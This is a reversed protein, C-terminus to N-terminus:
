RAPPMPIIAPIPKGARIYAAADGTLRLYWDTPTKEGFDDFQAGNPNDRWWPPPSGAPPDFAGGASPPASTAPQIATGEDFEDFMGVFAATAGLVSAEHFQRWLFAGHERDVFVHSSAPNQRNTMLNYWHFGPFIEPLWLQRNQACWKAQDAYNTWPTHGGAEWGQIGDPKKMMATWAPDTTGAPNSAGSAVFFARYKGPAHFWDILRAGVPDPGPPFDVPHKKSNYFFGFVMVVPLGDQHVYAPSATMGSDVLSMWHRTIVPVIQEAPVGSLDYELCWIRHNAEAAAKVNGMLHALRQERGTIWKGSADPKDLGIAFCQMAVSDIGHAAMMRFQVDVSRADMPSYLTAQSGDPYRFEGAKYQPCGQFYSMDPWLDFDVTAPAIQGSLAWHGWGRDSGDGPCCQWGQYGCIVSGALSRYADDARAPSMLILATYAFAVYRALDRMKM